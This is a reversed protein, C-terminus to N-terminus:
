CEFLVHRRGEHDACPVAAEVGFPLNETWRTWGNSTGSPLRYDALEEDTLTTCAQMSLVSEFIIEFDKM